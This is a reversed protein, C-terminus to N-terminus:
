ENKIESFMCRPFKEHHELLGILEDHLKGSHFEKETIPITYTLNHEVCIVNLM